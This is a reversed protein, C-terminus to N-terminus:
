SPWCDAASSRRAEGADRRRRGRRGGGTAGPSPSPVRPCTRDVIGLPEQEDARREAESVVGARALHQLARARLETARPPYCWPDNREPNWSVALLLALQPTTIEEPSRGFLMSSAQYLGMADRPGPTNTAWYSVAQSASFHRSVWMTLSFGQVHMAAERRPSHLSQLHMSAVTGAINFGPLSSPSRVVAKGIWMVVHWPYIARMDPTPSGDLYAWLKRELPPAVTSSPAQPMRPIGCIAVQYVLEVCGTSGLTLVIAAALAVRVACGLRRRRVM